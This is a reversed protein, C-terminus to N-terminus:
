GGRQRRRMRRGGGNARGPVGTEDRPAPPTGRGEPPETLWRGIARMLADAARMLVGVGVAAVAPGATEVLPRARELVPVPPAAPRREALTREAGRVLEGEVVPHIAEEPCVDLCAGCGTCTEEVVRAVAGGNTLAIAGVACVELCAGCGTCREGDIWVVQKRSM